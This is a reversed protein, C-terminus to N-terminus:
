TPAGIEIRWSPLNVSTGSVLQQPTCTTIYEMVSVNDHLVIHTAHGSTTVPVSKAAVTVKRGSTNGPATVFDAPTMTAEALRVAAIGAFTAPRASTVTMRVANDVVAFAADLVSDDVAKPM